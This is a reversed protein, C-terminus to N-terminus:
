MTRAAGSLMGSAFALLDSGTAVATAFGAIASVLLLGEAGLNLVGSRENLLLGLSALALVTGADLSSGLLLALSDM